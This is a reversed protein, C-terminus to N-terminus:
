PIEWGSLFFIMSIDVFSWFLEILSSLLVHLVPLTFTGIAVGICLFLYLYFYLDCLPLCLLHFRSRFFLSIPLARHLFLFMLRCWFFLSSANNNGVMILTGVCFKLINDPIPGSEISWAPYNQPSAPHEM